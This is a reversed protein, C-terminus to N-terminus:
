AELREIILPPPAVRVDGITFASSLEARAAELGVGDHHVFLLPDGDNVWDGLRVGMMFGVAPNISDEKTHRGAGLHISAVGIARTDMAQLFGSRTSFFPEIHRARPLLDPDDIVRVDGGQAEVIERFRQLARGDDLAREAEAPDAQGLRLMERALILTLERVDAPGGGRLVDISERLELANGVAIGLPQNMDTLYAVVEKGMEAGIGAMTQALLRATEADRMFAGSGVKVDLVLADIGEALKKSMISSAILPISEVTATVDRLAYLRKDAPAIEATQGILGCGLTAVLERFKSPSLQTSFGPICELKDLTGGTHGLGRGSIMPVRVGCAAVIPALPLSIKDGVGGTSHKDVKRGPLDSFDLVDGSHLMASTLPALEAPTMGRFFVAMLFASMQYDPLTGQTYADVLFRIEDPRLVAGDRKRAILEVARM